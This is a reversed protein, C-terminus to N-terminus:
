HTSVVAPPDKFDGCLYRLPIFKLLLEQFRFDESANRGTSPSARLSGEEHPTPNGQSGSFCRNVRGGAMGLDHNLSESGLYLSQARASM